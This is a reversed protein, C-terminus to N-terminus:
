AIEEAGVGREVSAELEVVAVGRRGLEGGLRRVLEDPRVERGRLRSARRVTDPVIPGGRGL